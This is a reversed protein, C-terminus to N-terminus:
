WQCGAAAGGVPCVLRQRGTLSKAAAKMGSGEKMGNEAASVNGGNRADMVSRDVCGAAAPRVRRNWRGRRQADDAQRERPKSRLSSSSSRRSTYPSLTTRGQAPHNCQEGHANWYCCASGGPQPWTIARPGSSRECVVRRFPSSKAMCGRDAMTAASVVHDVRDVAGEHGRKLEIMSVRQAGVIAYVQERGGM